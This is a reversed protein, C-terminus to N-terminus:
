THDFKNVIISNLALLNTMCFGKQSKLRGKFGASSINPGETPRATIQLAKWAQGNLLCLLARLHALIRRMNHGAGCLIANIADEQMGKLFNRGLLWDSKMHGIEVEVTTRRRLQRKLTYGLQRSGIILVNSCEELIGHGKYGRDVLTQPLIKGTLWEV